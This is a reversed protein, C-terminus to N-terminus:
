PGTSWPTGPGEDEGVGEWLVDGETKLNRIWQLTSRYIPDTTSPFSKRPHGAERGRLPVTLLRSDEAEPGRTIFKNLERFNQAM